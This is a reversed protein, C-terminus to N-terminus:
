DLACWQTGAALLQSHFVEEAPYVHEQMFAVLKNYLTRANPSFEQQLMAESQRCRNIFSVVM